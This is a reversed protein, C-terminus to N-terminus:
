TEPMSFTCRPIQIAPPVRPITANFSLFYSMGGTNLAPTGHLMGTGNMPTLGQTDSYYVGSPFSPAPRIREDALLDVHRRAESLGHSGRLLHQLAGAMFYIVPPLTLAPAETIELTLTRRLINLNNQDAEYYYISYSGGTGPAPTGFIDNNSQQFSLGTGCRRNCPSHEAPSTPRSSSGGFTGVTLTANQPSTILPTPDEAKIGRSFDDACFNPDPPIGQTIVQIQAIFAQSDGDPPHGTMIATGDGNDTLTAWPSLGCPTGISVPTIAGGTTTLTYSTTLGDPFNWSLTNELGAARRLTM